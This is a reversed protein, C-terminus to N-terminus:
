IKYLNVIGKQVAQMLFGLMRHQAPLKYRTHEQRFAELMQVVTAVAGYKHVGTSRHSQEIIPLSHWKM